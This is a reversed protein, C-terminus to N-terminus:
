LEEFGSMNVFMQVRKLRLLGPRYKDLWGDDERLFLSDRAAARDM